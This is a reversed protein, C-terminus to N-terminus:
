EDDRNSANCGRRHLRFKFFYIKLENENGPGFGLGCYSAYRISDSTQSFVVPLKNMLLSCM